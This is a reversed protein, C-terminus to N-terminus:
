FGCAREAAAVQADSYGRERAERRMSERGILSIGVGIQRCEAPSVKAPKAPAAKAPPKAPPKQSAKPAPVFKIKPPPPAPKPVPAPTTVPPPAPIPVPAPKPAPAIQEVWKSAWDWGTRTSSSGWLVAALLLVLAGATWRM